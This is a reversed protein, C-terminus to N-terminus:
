GIQSIRKTFSIGSRCCTNKIFITEQLVRTYNSLPQANSNQELDRHKVADYKTNLTNLLAVSSIKTINSSKKQVITNTRCLAHEFFM